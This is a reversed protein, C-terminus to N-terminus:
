ELEYVEIIAEGTGGDAGSVSVTYNYGADLMVILAADKSGEELEFAGAPGFVPALSASWDDNSTLLTASGDTEIRHVELKPDALFDSIDFQELGPGIGRILLREAGSGTVAFGAILIDAGTGVRNRASVNILRGEGDGGRDYAEVLVAGASNGTVHVTNKGALEQILAADRSGLDFPFAGAPEFEDELEAPWDDNAAIAMDASDFVTIRPDSMGVVDGNTVKTLGPGAARLLIPRAHDAVVFGIIMTQNAAMPARVSLNYLRAHSTDIPEADFSVTLTQDSLLDRVFEQTQGNFEVVIRHTGRTLTAEFAGTPDSFGAADTWWTGKVRDIWAQGSPKVVWNSPDSDDFLIANDRWHQSDNMGWMTVGQVAPHEWAADLVNATVQAQQQPTATTWQQTNIDLETIEITLGPLGNPHNATPAMPAALIDLRRLIQEKTIFRDMHGQLGIGDVPGGADRILDILEKYEHIDSDNEQWFNLMNYENIFLVADPDAERARKFWTAIEAAEAALTRPEPVLKEIILAREHFPENYLDFNEVGRGALATHYATIHDLIRTRLAEGSLAEADNPVFWQSGWITTHGRLRMPESGGFARYTAALAAIEQARAAGGAEFETWKMDNGYTISNFTEELAQVTRPSYAPNGPEIEAASLSTGFRFAHDVMEVTVTAGELPTGSLNNVQVTLTAQRHAPQALLCSATAGAFLLSLLIRFSPLRPTHRLM